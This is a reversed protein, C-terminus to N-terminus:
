IWMPGLQTFCRWGRGPQQRLVPQDGRRPSPLSTLPHSGAVVFVEDYFREVVVGHRKFRRQHQVSSRHRILTLQGDWSAPWEHACEFGLTIEGLQNRARVYQDGCFRTLLQLCHAVMWLASGEPGDARM